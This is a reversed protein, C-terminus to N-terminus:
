AGSAAKKITVDRECGAGTRNTVYPENMSHVLAFPFRGRVRKWAKNISVHGECVSVQRHVLQQDRRLHTASSTSWQIANVGQQLKSGKDKGKRKGSNQCFEGCIICGILIIFIYFKMFVNLIFFPISM